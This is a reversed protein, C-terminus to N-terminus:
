PIPHEDRKNGSVQLSLVAAALWCGISNKSLRYSVRTSLLFLGFRSSKRLGHKGMDLGDLLMTVCCNTGLAAEPRRTDVVGERLRLRLAVFVYITLGVIRARGFQPLCSPCGRSGLPPCVAPPLLLAVLAFLFPRPSWCAEYELRRALGAKNRGSPAVARTCSLLSGLPFLSFAVWPRDTERFLSPEAAPESARL